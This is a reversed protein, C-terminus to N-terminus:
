PTAQSCIKKKLNNNLIFLILFDNTWTITLLNPSVNEKNSTVTNGAALRRQTDWKCDAHALICRGSEWLEM